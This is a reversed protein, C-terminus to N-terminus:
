WWRCGGGQLTVAANDIVIEDADWMGLVKRPGRVEARFLIAFQQAFREDITIAERLNQQKRITNPVYLLL